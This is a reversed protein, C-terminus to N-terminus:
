SGPPLITVTRWQTGFRVATPVDPFWIDFFDGRVGSGTDEVVFITGEFGEIMLKTGMPYFRIDAAVTGWHTRTGSATISGVAGGDSGNAYGTVKATITRSGPPPTSGEAPLQGPQLLYAGISYGGLTGAGQIEIQYWDLSGDSIPGNLIRVSTGEPLVGLTPHQLGPGERLSLGTEGTGAIVYVENLTLQASAEIAFATTALVLASTL